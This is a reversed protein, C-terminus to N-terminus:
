SINQCKLYIAKLWQIISLESANIEDCTSVTTIFDCEITEDPKGIVTCCAAIDSEIVDIKSDIINIETNMAFVKSEITQAHEELVDVQSSLYCLSGLVDPPLLENECEPCGLRNLIETLAKAVVAAVDAYDQPIEPHAVHSCSIEELLKVWTGEHDVDGIVSKLQCLICKIQELFAGDAIPPVQLTGDSACVGDQRPARTQVLKKLDYLATLIQKKADDVSNASGSEYASREIAHALRVNAMVFICCALSLAIKIVKTM